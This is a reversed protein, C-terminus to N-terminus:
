CARRRPAAAASSPSLRTLYYEPLECIEEFLQSGVEDYFFRCPLSFPEAALGDAVAEAFADRQARESPHEAIWAYRPTRQARLM